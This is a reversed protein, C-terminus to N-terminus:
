KTCAPPNPDRMRVADDHVEQWRQEIEERMLTSGDCYVGSPAVGGYYTRLENISCIDEFGELDLIRKKMKVGILRM